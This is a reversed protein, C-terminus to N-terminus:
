YYMTLDIVNSPVFSFDTNRQLELNWAQVLYEHQKRPVAGQMDSHLCVTFLTEHEFLFCQRIVCAQGDLYKHRELCPLGKFTLCVNDGPRFSAKASGGLRNEVRADLIGQSDGTEASKVTGGQPNRFSWTIPMDHGGTDINTWSYGAPLSSRSSASM